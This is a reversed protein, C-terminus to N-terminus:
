LALCEGLFSQSVQPFNPFGALPSNPYCLKDTPQISPRGFDSSEFHTYPGSQAARIDSVGGLSPLPRVAVPVSVPAPPPSYDFPRPSLLPGLPQTSPSSNLHSPKVIDSFGSWASIYGLKPAAFPAIAVAPAATVGNLFSKSVEKMAFTDCSSPLGVPEGISSANASALQLGLPSPKICRSLDAMLDRKVKRFAFFDSETKSRPQPKAFGDITTPSHLSDVSPSQLHPSHQLQPIPLRSPGTSYPSVHRLEAAPLNPAGTGWFDKSAASEGASGNLIPWDCAAAPSFNVGGLSGNLPGSPVSLPTSRNLIPTTTGSPFNTRPSLSPSSSHSGFPTTPTQTLSRSPPTSFTFQSRSFASSLGSHCRQQNLTTSDVDNYDVNSWPNFGACLRFLITTLLASFYLVPGIM